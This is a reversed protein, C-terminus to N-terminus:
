RHAIYLRRGTEAVRPFITHGDTPTYPYSLSLGLYPPHPTTRQSVDFLVCLETLFFPLVELLVSDQVVFLHQGQSPTAGLDPTCCTRIEVSIGLGSVGPWSQSRDPVLPQPYM